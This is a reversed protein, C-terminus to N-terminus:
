IIAGDKKEIKDEPKAHGNGNGTIQRAIKNKRRRFWELGILPFYCRGVGIMSLAPACTAAGANRIEIILGAYDGSNTYTVSCEVTAPSASTNTIATMFISGQSNAYNITGRITGVDAASAGPSTQTGVSSVALGNADQLSVTMTPNTGNSSTSSTNGFGSGGTVRYAKINWIVTTSNFTVTISTASSGATTAYAYVHRSSPSDVTALLSYTNGGTDVVSVVTDLATHIFIVIRDDASITITVVETLELLGDIETVSVFAPDAM